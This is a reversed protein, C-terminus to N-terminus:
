KKYKEAIFHYAAMVGICLFPTGLVSIIYVPSNQGAFLFPLGLLEFLAAFVFWLRSVARNYKRTDSVEPAKVGAWFGVPKKAMLCYVGFGVFVAAIVSWIIFGAIM